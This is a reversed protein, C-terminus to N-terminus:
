ENDITVTTTSMLHDYLNGKDIIDITLTLITIMNPACTKKINTKSGRRVVYWKILVLLPTIITIRLNNSLWVQHNM